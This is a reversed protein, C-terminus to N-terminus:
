EKSLASDNSRPPEGQKILSNLEYIEDIVTIGRGQNSNEGPKVIWINRMKHRVVAGEYEEQKQEREMLGQRRRYFEVFRAYEPDKLGKRIHFTLPLYNFVNQGILSYYERLNYFLAKKNGLYFNHILHNHITYTQEEPPM